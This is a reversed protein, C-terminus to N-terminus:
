TLLSRMQGIKMKTKAFLSFLNVINTLSGITYALSSLDLINFEVLWHGQTYNEIHISHNSHM